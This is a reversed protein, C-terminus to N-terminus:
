FVIIVLDLIVEVSSITFCPKERSYMGILYLHIYFEEFLPIFLLNFIPSFRRGVPTERFIFLYRLIKFFHYLSLVVNHKNPTKDVEISTKEVKEMEGETEEPTGNVVDDNKKFVDWSSSLPQRIRKEIVSPKNLIQEYGDYSHQNFLYYVNFIYHICDLLREM